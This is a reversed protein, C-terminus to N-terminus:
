SGSGGKILKFQARRRRAEAESQPSAAQGEGKLMSIRRVDVFGADLLAADDSRAAAKPRVSAPPPPPKGLALRQEAILREAREARLKERLPHLRGLRYGIGWRMLAALLFLFGFTATIGNSAHSLCAAMAALGAAIAARSAAKQSAKANADFKGGDDINSALRLAEGFFRLARFSWRAAALSGAILLLAGFSVAGSSLALFAAGAAALGIIVGIHSFGRESRRGSPGPGLRPTEKSSLLRDPRHDFGLAERLEKHAQFDRAAKQAAEELSVSARALLVVTAFTAFGGLLPNLMMLITGAAFALLAGFASAHSGITGGVQLAGTRLALARDLPQVKEAERALEDAASKLQKELVDERPRYDAAILDISRRLPVDLAAERGREPDQLRLSVAELAQLTKVTEAPGHLMWLNYAKDMGDAQSSPHTKLTWATKTAEILWTRSAEYSPGRRVLAGPTRYPGSGGPEDARLGGLTEGLAIAAASSEHFPAGAYFRDLRAAVAPSAPAGASAASARKFERLGATLGGAKAARTKAREPEARLAARGAPVAQAPARSVADLAPLVSLGGLSPPAADLAASGSPLGSVAQVTGPLPGVTLAPAPAPTEGTVVQAAAPPLSEAALVACLAAALGRKSTQRM